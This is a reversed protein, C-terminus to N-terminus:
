PGPEWVSAPLPVEAACHGMPDGSGYFDLGAPENDSLKSIAFAGGDGQRYLIVSGAPLAILAEVTDVTRLRVLLGSDLATDVAFDILRATMGGDRVPPVEAVDGGRAPYDTSGHNPWGDRISKVLESRISM